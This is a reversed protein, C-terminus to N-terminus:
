EHWYIADSGDYHKDYNDESGVEANADVITFTSEIDGVYEPFSENLQKEGSQLTQPPSLQGLFKRGTHM